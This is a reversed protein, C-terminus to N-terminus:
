VYAECKRDVRVMAGEGHGAKQAIIFERDILFILCHQDKAAQFRLQPLACHLVICKYIM